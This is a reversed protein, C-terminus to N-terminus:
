AGVGWNGTFESQLVILFDVATPRFVSPLLFHVVCVFPDRRLSVFHWKKCSCFSSKPCWFHVKQLSTWWTWLTQFDCFFDWEVNRAFHAVNVNKTSLLKNFIGFISLKALKQFGSAQLWVSNGSLDTKIPWFNTSFAM